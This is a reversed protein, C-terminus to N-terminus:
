GERMTEKVYKIVRKLGEELTVRPTYGLKTKIKEISPISVQPTAEQETRPPLLKLESSSSTLRKILEALDRISVRGGTGVNFVEGVAEERLLCLEVAYCLNEVHYPDTVDRGGNYLPIPENRLCARVFRPVVKNEPEYEGFAKWPRLVVVPLGRHVYYSEAFREGVVKSYDYPTRPNPPDTEEVPVRGPVGYYNASSFYIFRAAGKRAALELMNLTGVCNVKYCLYPDRLAAPIDAIAALHVVADFAEGGLKNFVQREETLDVRVGASEAKDVRVVGFGRSSLYEALHRGVFGESGTLLVKV